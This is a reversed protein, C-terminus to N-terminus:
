HVLDWPHYVAVTTSGGAQYTFTMIKGDPSLVFEGTEFVVGNKMAKLEFTREDKKVFQVMAYPTAGYPRMYEPRWTGDFASTWNGSTSSGIATATLYDVLLMGDVTYDFIRYQMRPAKGAPFRSEEPALKWAGILAPPIQERADRRLPPTQAPAPAAALLSLIFFLPRIM